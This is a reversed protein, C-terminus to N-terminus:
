EEKAEELKDALWRCTILGAYKNEEWGLKALAEEGFIKEAYENDGKKLSLDLFYGCPPNGERLDKEAFRMFRMLGFSTESKYSGIEYPPMEGEKYKPLESGNFKVLPVRKAADSLIKAALPDDELICIYGLSNIVPETM